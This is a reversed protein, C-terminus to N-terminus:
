IVWPLNRVRERKADVRGRNILQGDELSNGKNVLEFQQLVSELFLAINIQPSQSFALKYPPISKWKKWLSQSVMYYLRNLFFIWHGLSSGSINSQLNAVDRWMAELLWLGMQSKKPKLLSDQLAVCPSILASTKSLTARWLVYLGLALGSM